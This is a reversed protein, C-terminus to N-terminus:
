NSSHHGNGEPGGVLALDALLGSLLCALVGDGEGVGPRHPIPDAASKGSWRQCVIYIIIYIPM